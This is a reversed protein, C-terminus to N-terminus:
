ISSSSYRIAVTSSALDAPLCEALKPLSRTAHDSAPAYRPTGRQPLLDDATCYVSVCLLDLDAHM